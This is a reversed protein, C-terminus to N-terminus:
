ARWCGCCRGCPFRARCPISVRRHRDRPCRPPIITSPRRPARGLSLPRSAVYRCAVKILWFRKRFVDDVLRRVDKMVALALCHAQSGCSSAFPQEADIVRFALRECIGALCETVEQGVGVSAGLAYSEEVFEGVSVQGAVVPNITLFVQSNQRLCDFTARTPLANKISAFRRFRVSM